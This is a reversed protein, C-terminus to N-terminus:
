SKVLNVVFERIDFIFVQFGNNQTLIVRKLRGNPDPFQLFIKFRVILKRKEHGQFHFTVRYPHM